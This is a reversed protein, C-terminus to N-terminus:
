GVWGQNGYPSPPAPPLFGVAPGAQGSNSIYANPYANPPVPNGFAPQQLGTQDLLPNTQGPGFPYPNAAPYPSAPPQFSVPFAQSGSLAQPNFGPLNYGGPPGFQNQPMANAGPLQNMFSFDPAAPQFNGPQFTMPQSPNGNFGQGNPNPPYFQPSPPFFGGPMMNTAM